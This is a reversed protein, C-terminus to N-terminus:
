PLPAYVPVFRLHQTLEELSPAKPPTVDSGFRQTYEDTAWAYASYGALQNLMAVSFGVTWGVHRFLGRTGTVAELIRGQRAGYQIMSTDLLTQGIGMTSEWGVDLAGRGVDSSGRIVFNMVNSNVFGILGGIGFKKLVSYKTGAVISMLLTETTMYAINQGSGPQHLVNRLVVLPNRDGVEEWNYNAEAAVQMTQAGLIYKWNQQLGDNLLNAVKKGTRSAFSASKGIQKGTPVMLQEYFMTAARRALRQESVAGATMFRVHERATAAGIQARVAAFALAPRKTGLRLAIRSSFSRAGRSFKALMPGLASKSIAQSLAAKSKGILHTLGRFAAFVGADAVAYTLNGRVLWDDAEHAIEQWGWSVAEYYGRARGSGPEIERLRDARIELAMLDVQDFILARFFNQRADEGISVLRTLAQWGLLAASRNGLDGHEELVEVARELGWGKALAEKTASDAIPEILADEFVKGRNNIVFWADMVGNDNLDRGILVTSYTDPLGRRIEKLQIEVQREVTLTLTKLIKLEARSGRISVVRHETATSYADSSPARVVEPARTKVVLFAGFGALVGTLAFGGALKLAVNRKFRRIM